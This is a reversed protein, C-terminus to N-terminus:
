QVKLEQMAKELRTKVTPDIESSAALQAFATAARREKLDVMADILALQVLPSDQLSLAEAMAQRVQPRQSYKRLADTAALRVDISSDSRLTQVLASVVDEDPNDLRVSYNVGRLREVASQQQLLSMAVMGRMNHLEQRLESVEPQPKPQSTLTTGAFFGGIAFVAAAAWAIQPRSYWATRVVGLRSARSERALMSDFDQRFYASPSASPLSNLKDWIELEGQCVPCSAAHHSFSARDAPNLRNELYAALQREGTPCFNLERM